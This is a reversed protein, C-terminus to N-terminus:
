IRWVTKTNICASRHSILVHILNIIFLGVYVNGLNYLVPSKAQPSAYELASLYYELALEPRSSSDNAHCVWEAEILYLSRM